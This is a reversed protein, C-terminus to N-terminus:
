VYLLGIKCFVKTNIEAQAFNEIARPEDRNWFSFESATMM